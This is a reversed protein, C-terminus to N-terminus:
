YRLFLVLWALGLVGLAAPGYGLWHGAPPLTARHQFTWVALWVGVLTAAFLIALFALVAGVAPAFGEGRPMFRPVIFAAALLLAIVLNTRHITRM